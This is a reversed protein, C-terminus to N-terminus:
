MQGLAKGGIRTTVLRVRRRGGRADKGDTRWGERWKKHHREEKWRGVSDWRHCFSYYSQHQGCKPWGNGGWTLGKENVMVVGEGGVRVTWELEPLIRVKFPYNFVLGEWLRGKGGL